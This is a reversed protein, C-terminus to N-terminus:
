KIGEGSASVYRQAHGSKQAVGGEGMEMPEYFQEEVKSDAGPDSRDKSRHGHYRNAM